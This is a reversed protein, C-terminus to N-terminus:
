LALREKLERSRARSAIVEQGGDLVLKYRGSFWPIMERIRDIQVIASRHIRMFHRRDLRSELADLTFPVIHRDTVTEGSARVYLNTIGDNVEAALISEASVVILRDRAPVSLQRIPETPPLPAAGRADGDLTDLLTALREDADDTAREARGIAGELREAGIPKLLYDIANAEFARIAYEDYATTFVIAPRAEPTLRDIVDFGDLGPMRVDLFALDFAGTQLTELAAVGDEAEEIPGIRGSEALPELMRRLRSRAPAEDDAILVRLM